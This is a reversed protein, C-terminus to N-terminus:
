ILPITADLSFLPRTYTVWYATLIRIGNEWMGCVEADAVRPACFAFWFRSSACWSHELLLRFLIIAAHLHQAFFWCFFLVIVLFSLGDPSERVRLSHASQDSAYLRFVRAVLQTVYLLIIKPWTVLYEFCQPFSEPNLAFCYSIPPHLPPFNCRVLTWAPWYHLLVVHVMSWPMLGTSLSILFPFSLLHDVASLFSWFHIGSLLSM